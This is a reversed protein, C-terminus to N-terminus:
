LGRSWPPANPLTVQRISRAAQWVVWVPALGLWASAAGILRPTWAWTKLQDVYVIGVIAPALIVALTVVLFVGLVAMLRQQEHPLADFRTKLPELTPTRMQIIEDFVQPENIIRQVREVLGHRGLRQVDAGGIGVSILERMTQEIRLGEDRLRDLRWMGLFGILAALAAACQALTSLAYYLSTDSMAAPANVIALLLLAAVAGIEGAIMYCAQRRREERSKV